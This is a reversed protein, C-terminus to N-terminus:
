KIEIKNIDILVDKKFSDSLDIRLDDFLSDNVVASYFNNGRTGFRNIKRAILYAMNMRQTKIMYRLTQQGVGLKKGAGKATLNGRNSSIPIGKQIIWQYIAEKLPIASKKTAKGRGKDVAEYYRDLELKFQIETDSKFKVNFAISQSLNKSANSKKDVLSKRLDGQVKNGFDQLTQYITREEM